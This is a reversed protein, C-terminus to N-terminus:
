SWGRGKRTSGWRPLDEPNSSDRRIMRPTLHGRHDLSFGIINPSTGANLVYLLDHFPALSVPFAGGSDVKDVLGLGGPLVRFVSVENSGANVAFSWRHDASLV